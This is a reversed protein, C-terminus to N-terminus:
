YQRIKRALKIDDDKLTERHADVAIAVGGEILSRLYVETAVQIADLAERGVRPSGISPRLIEKVLRVFPARSFILCGSNKQYYRIERLAETGPKFRHAKKGPAKSKPAKSRVHCSTKVSGGYASGLQKLGFEIDKIQVSKRGNFVVSVSVSKLLKRLYDLLQTRLEQYIMGSLRKAGAEHALRKLSPDTIGLVLRDTTNSM